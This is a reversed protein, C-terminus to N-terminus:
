RALELPSSAGRGFRPLTLEQTGPVVAVRKECYVYFLRNLKPM